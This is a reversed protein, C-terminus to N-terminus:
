GMGPLWGLLIFRDNWFAFLMLAMILGFGVRFAMEQTAESLPKGRLAEIAYFALHGGDLIPVPFLNIMGISVSIFAM